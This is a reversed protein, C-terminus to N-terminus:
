PLFSFLLVYIVCSYEDSCVSTLINALDLRTFWRHALLLWVLCGHYVLDLDVLFTRRQSWRPSWGPDFIRVPDQFAMSLVRSGPNPNKPKIQTPYFTPLPQKIKEIIRRTV